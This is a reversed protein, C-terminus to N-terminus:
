TQYDSTLFGTSSLLASFRAKAIGLKATTPVKTFIEDFLGALRCRSILNLTRDYEDDSYIRVEVIVSAFYPREEFIEVLRKVHPAYAKISVNRFVRKAFEQRTRSEINRNTRRFRYLTQDPMFSAILNTLETPIGNLDPTAAMKSSDEVSDTTTTRSDSPSTIVQQNHTRLLSSSFFLVPSSSFLDISLYILSISTDQHVLHSSTTRFKQFPTLVTLFDFRCAFLRVM